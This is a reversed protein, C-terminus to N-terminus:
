ATAKKVQSQKFKVIALETDANKVISDGIARMRNVIKDQKKLLKTVAKGHKTEQKVKGAKIAAIKLKLSAQINKVTENLERQLQSNEAWLAKKEEGLEHKYEQLETKSLTAIKSMLAKSPEARNSHKASSARGSVVIAPLPAIGPLQYPLTQSPPTTVLIQGKAPIPWGKLNAILTEFRNLIVKYREATPTIKNNVWAEWDYGESAVKARKSKVIEPSPLPGGKKKPKNQLDRTDIYEGDKMVYHASRAYRNITSSDASYVWDPTFRVVKNPAGAAFLHAGYGDLIDGKSFVKDVESFGEENQIPLFDKGFPVGVRHYAPDTNKVIFEASKRMDQIWTDAYPYFQMAVIMKFGYQKQWSKYQPLYKKQLKITLDSKGVVEPVTVILMKPNKSAALLKAYEATVFEFYEISAKESEYVEKPIRKEPKTKPDFCYRYREISGNDMFIELNLGELIEFSRKIKKFGEYINLCVGANLFSFDKIVPFTSRDGTGHYIQFKRPQPTQKKSM